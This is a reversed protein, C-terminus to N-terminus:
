LLEVIVLDAPLPFFYIMLSYIWASISFIVFYVFFFYPSPPLFLWLILLLQTTYNQPFSCTLFKTSILFCSPSIISIGQSIFFITLDELLLAQSPLLALETSPPHSASLWSLCCSFSYWSNGFSLALSSYCALYALLLIFFRLLLRWSVILMFAMEHSGLTTTQLDLCFIREEPWM